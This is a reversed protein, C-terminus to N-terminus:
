RPKVNQCAIVERLSVKAFSNQTRSAESQFDMLQQLESVLCEMSKRQMLPWLAKKAAKIGSEPHPLQVNISHVTTLHRAM